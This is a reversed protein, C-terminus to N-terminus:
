GKAHDSSGNLRSVFAIQPSEFRGKLKTIFHSSVGKFSM